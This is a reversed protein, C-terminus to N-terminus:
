LFAVIMPNEIGDNDIWLRPSEAIETGDMEMKEGIIVPIKVFNRVGTQADITYNKNAYYKTGEPMNTETFVESLYDESAIYISNDSCIVEDATKSLEVITCAEVSVFDESRGLCQLNDICDMIDQLVEEQARIHITLEVDYLVEYYKISTTLNRFQNIPILYETREKTKFADKLAKLQNKLELIKAKLEVERKGKPSEKQEKQLKKVEADLASCKENLVVKDKTDLQERLSKLDQYEQLLPADFVEITINNKFSNGQSKKAKAVKTFGASLLNGNDLKVLTGRDDMVTNLFCHDVYTERQMSGYTGQISVDMPHYNKYGCAAHLAGIVTSPFPLPYTMKNEVSEAKRYHAAKQTLHLRIAKM